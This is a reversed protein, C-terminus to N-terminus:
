QAIFQMSCKWDVTTAALGTASARVDNGSVTISADWNSDSYEELTAAEVGEMTASGGDRYVVATKIVGCRESGDAKTGVVNIQVMYTKEDELTFSDITTQTDDTTQVTASSRLQWATAGVVAFANGDWCELDLDDQQLFVFEEPDTVADRQAKTLRILVDGTTGVLGERISKYADDAVLTQAAGVVDSSGDKFEVLTMSGVTTETFTHSAFRNLLDDRYLEKMSM